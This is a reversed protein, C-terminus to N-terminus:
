RMKRARILRQKFYYFIVFAMLLEALQFPFIYIPNAHAAMGVLWIHIIILVLMILFGVLNTYLDKIYNFFYIALLMLNLGPFFVYRDLLLYAM